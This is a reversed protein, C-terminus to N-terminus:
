GDVRDLRNEIAGIRSNLAGILEGFQRNLDKVAEDLNQSMVLLVKIDRATENVRAELHGVKLRTEVIQRGLMRLDITDSNTKAM